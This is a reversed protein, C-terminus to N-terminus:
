TDGAEGRQDGGEFGVAGVAAGPEREQGRQGDADDGFEDEEVRKVEVEDAAAAPQDGARRRDDGIELGEGGGDDDGAQDKDAVEGAGVEVGGGGRAQGGVDEGGGCQDDEPGAGELDVAGDRGEA